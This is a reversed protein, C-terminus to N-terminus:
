CSMKCCKPTNNAHHSVAPLCHVLCKMNSLHKANSQVPCLGKVDVIPTKDDQVVNAVSSQKTLFDSEVSLAFYRPDLQLVKAVHAVTSQVRHLALAIAGLQLAVALVVQVGTDIAEALKRAWSHIQHLDNNILLILVQQSPLLPRHHRHATQRALDLIPRLANPAVFGARHILRRLPRNPGNDLIHTAPVQFLQAKQTTTSASKAPTRQKPLPPKYQTRRSAALAKPDNSNKKKKLANRKSQEECFKMHRKAADENFRRECHPCKVYDPNEDPPPPPLDALSGGADIVAQAKRAARINRVFQEHKVKWAPKEKKKPADQKASPSGTAKTGPLVRQTTSDFKGRRRTGNMAKLCIPAHKELAKPNFSRSCTPCPQLQVPAVPTEQSFDINGDYEMTAM